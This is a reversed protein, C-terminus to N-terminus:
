AVRSNLDLTPAGAAAADCADAPRRFFKGLFNSGRLAIRRLARMFVAAEINDLDTLLERSVVTSV